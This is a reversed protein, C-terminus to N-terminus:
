RRFDPGAADYRTLMDEVEAIAREPSKYRVATSGTERQGYLPACCYTCKFPCGRSFSFAPYNLVTRPDFIDLDPM